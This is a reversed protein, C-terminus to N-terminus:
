GGDCFVYFRRGSLTQSFKDSQHQEPRIGEQPNMGRTQGLSLRDLRKPFYLVRWLLYFEFEM